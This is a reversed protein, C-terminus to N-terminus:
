LTAAVVLALAATEVRLIRAGLRVKQWGQQVAAEVERDTFGGEPGVALRSPGASAPALDIGDPHAILRRMGDAPLAVFNSWDTLPMVEMLRNRGCQKSAEIVYRRLKDLKNAGPEFVTHRTVLPYFRTAGLETLKEILFQSRDGKPLPAAVEIPFPWERDPSERGEIQLEVLKKGVEVVRAPYEHGDGNFLYVPDGPRVRCVQALHRAEPGDLTIPGPGLPSNLYYRESM